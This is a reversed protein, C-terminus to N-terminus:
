SSAQQTAVKRRGQRNAGSSASWGWCRSRASAFRHTKSRPWWQLAIGLSGFGVIESEENAYLWVQNGQQLEDLGGSGGRPAKIWDAVEREWPEDDCDFGQVNPLLEETFPMKTLSSAM